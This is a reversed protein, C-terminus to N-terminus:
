NSHCTLVGSKPSTLVALSKVPRLESSSSCPTELGLLRLLSASSTSTFHLASPGTELVSWSKLM